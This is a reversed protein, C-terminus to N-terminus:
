LYKDISPNNSKKTKSVSKKPVQYKQKKPRPRNKNKKWPWDVDIIGIDEVMENIFVPHIEEYLVNIRYDFDALREYLLLAKKDYTNICKLIDLLTIENSTSWNNLRLTQKFTRNKVTKLSERKSLTLAVLNNPKATYTSLVASRFSPSKMAITRLTDYPLNSLTKLHASLENTTPKYLKVTLGSKVFDLMIHYNKASRYKIKYSPYLNKKSAFVVPHRSLKSINYLGMKYRYSFEDVDDILIIKHKKGTLTDMNISKIIANLDDINQIDLPTIRFLEVNFSAALLKILVTKGNGTNSYLLVHKPIDIDLITNCKPCILQTTIDKFMVPFKCKTCKIIGTSHFHYNLWNVLTEKANSNGIFNRVM